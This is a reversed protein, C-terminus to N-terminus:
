LLWCIHYKSLIFKQIFCSESVIIHQNTQFTKHKKNQLKSIIFSQFYSMLVIQVTTTIFLFCM